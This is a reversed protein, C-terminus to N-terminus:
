LMEHLHKRFEKKALKALYEFISREQKRYGKQTLEPLYYKLNRYYSSNDKKQLLDFLVDRLARHYIHAKDLALKRTRLYQSDMRSWMTQMVIDIYSEMEKSELHDSPTPVQEQVTINERFADFKIHRVMKVLMDISIFNQYGELDHLTQLLNRIVVSVPDTPHYIDQFRQNLLEDPIPPLKKRLYQALTQTMEVETESSNLHCGNSYFVFERGLDHFTHLKEASRIAVKINRVIKAGEPDRERFIRSLEQKTKRVVLRRTLILVEADDVPQESFKAEYYRKLQYFQLNEDRSFLEAVCDLALDELELDSEPRDGSIRKGMMEQYKLYSLSIKQTLNIFEVVESQSYQGSCLNCVLQKLNTTKMPNRTIRCKTLWGNQGTVGM